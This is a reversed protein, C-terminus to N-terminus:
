SHFNSFVKGRRWCVLIREFFPGRSGSQSSFIGGYDGLVKDRVKAWGKYGLFCVRNNCVCVFTIKFGFFCFVYLCM